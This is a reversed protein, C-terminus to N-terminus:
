EGQAHWLFTEQSRKATPAPRAPKLIECDTAESDCGDRPNVSFPGFLSLVWFDATTHLFLGQQHQLFPLLSKFSKHNFDFDASICKQVCLVELRSWRQLVPLTYRIFHLIM